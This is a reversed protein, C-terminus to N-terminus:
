AEDVEQLFIDGWIGVFLNAGGDAFDVVVRM